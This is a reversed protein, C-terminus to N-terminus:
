VLWKSLLLWAISVKFSIALPFHTQFEIWNIQNPKSCLQFMLPSAVRIGWANSPFAPLANAIHSIFHLAEACSFPHAVAYQIQKSLTLLQISLCLKFCFLQICLWDLCLNAQKHHWLVYILYHRLSTMFILITLQFPKYCKPLAGKPIDAQCNLTLSPCPHPM